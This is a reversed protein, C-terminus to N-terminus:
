KNLFVAIYESPDYRTNDFSEQADDKNIIQVTFKKKSFGSAYRPLLTDQIYKLQSSSDNYPNEPFTGFAFVLSPEYELWNSSPKAEMQKVLCVPVFADPGRSVFIPGKAFVEEIRATSGKWESPNLAAYWKKFIERVKKEEETDWGRGMPMADEKNLEQALKYFNNIFKILKANKMSSICLYQNM